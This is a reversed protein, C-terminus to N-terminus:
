VDCQSYPSFFTRRATLSFAKERRHAFGLFPLPAVSLSYPSHPAVADCTRRRSLFPSSFSVASLVGLFASMSIVPRRSLPSFRSSSASGSIRPM